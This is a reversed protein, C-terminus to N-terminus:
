RWLEKLQYGLWKLISRNLMALRWKLRKRKSGWRTAITLAAEQHSACVVDDEARTIFGAKLPPKYVGVSPRWLVGRAYMYEKMVGQSTRRLGPYVFVNAERIKFKDKDKWIHTGDKDTRDPLPADSYPIGEGEIPSIVKIGHQEYIPRLMRLEDWLEKGTRGTMACALYISVTFPKKRRSSMLCRGLSAPVQSCTM